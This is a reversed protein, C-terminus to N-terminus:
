QEFTIMAVRTGQTQPAAASRAPAGSAGRGARGQALQRLWRGHVGEEMCCALARRLALCRACRECFRVARAECRLVTCAGSVFAEVRVWSSARL